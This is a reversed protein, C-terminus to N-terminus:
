AFGEPKRGHQGFKKQCHIQKKWVEHGGSTHSYSLGQSTLFSRFEPVSINSLQGM